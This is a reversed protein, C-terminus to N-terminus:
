NDKMWERRHRYKIIIGDDVAGSRGALYSASFVYVDFEVIKMVVDIVFGDCQLM